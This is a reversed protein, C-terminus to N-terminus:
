KKIDYMQAIKILRAANRRKVFTRYSKHIFPLCIFICIFFVIISNIIFICDSKNNNNNNKNNNTNNTNNNSSKPSIIIIPPNYEIIEPTEETTRFIEETIQLTSNEIGNKCCLNNTKFCIATKDTCEALYSIEPLFQLSPKCTHGYVLISLLDDCDFLNGDIRVMKILPLINRTITFGELRAIRNYSLAIYTLKPMNKFIDISIVEIENYSLDVTDLKFFMEIDSLTSTIYKFKNDDLYLYTLKPCGVIYKFDFECCMQNSDLRITSLEQLASLKAIEKPNLKSNMLTIGTTKSYVGNLRFKTYNSPTKHFISFKNSDLHFEDDNEVFNQPNDFHSDNIKVFNKDRCCIDGTTRLVATLQLSSCQAVHTIKPLWDIKNNVTKSYHMMNLLEECSFINGDIQMTRVSPLNLHTKSFGDVRAIKNYSLGIYTLKPMRYFADISITEIENNNFSVGLLRPLTQNIRLSNRIYKLRNNDLYLFKLKDCGLLYRFDFKCCMNNHDLRLHQLTKLTNLKVIELPFINGNVLTLQELNKYKPEVLTLKTFNVYKSEFIRGDQIYVTDNFTIINSMKCCLKDEKDSYVWPIMMIEKSCESVHSLRSLLKIVPDVSQSYSIMEDMKHCPLLNHDIIIFKINPTVQRFDKFSEIRMIKNFTLIISHLFAMNQFMFPSVEEIENYALNILELLLPEYSISHSISKFKNNTLHLTKVKSGINAFDFDCCMDNYDLGLSTLNKLQKLKVIEKVDIKGDMFCFVTTIYDFNLLKFKTYNSEIVRLIINQNPIVFEDFRTDHEVHKSNNIPNGNVCCIKNDFTRATYQNDCEDVYTIPPLLDLSPSLTDGYALMKNLYACSFTNGDITIMKILPLDNRISFFGDIYMIRNYSLGIYTLNRMNSFMTVYIQEIDNYSLEIETLNYFYEDSELTNYIYKFQNNKLHLYKLNQCGIISKFDFGCCMNNSDLLIFEVNNLVSLKSIERSDLNSNVLGLSQVKDFKAANLLFKTYNSPLEHYIYEVNNIIFEDANVSFVFGFIM